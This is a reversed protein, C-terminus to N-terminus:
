APPHPCPQRDLHRLHGLRQVLELRLALDKPPREARAGLLQLPAVPSQELADVPQRHPSQPPLNLGEGRLVEHPNEEAPVVDLRAVPKLAAAPPARRPPHRPPPPPGGRPPPPPRQR